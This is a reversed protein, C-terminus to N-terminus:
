QIEGLKAVSALRTMGLIIAPPVTNPETSRLSERCACACNDMDVPMA